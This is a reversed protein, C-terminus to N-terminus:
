RSRTGQLLGFYTMLFLTKRNHQFHNDVVWGENNLEFVRGDETSPINVEKGELIPTFEADLTIVKTEWSTLTTRYAGYLTNNVPLIALFFAGPYNKIVVDTVKTLKLTSFSHLLPQYIQDTEFALPNITVADEEEEELVALDNLGEKELETSTSSANSEARAPAINRGDSPYVVTIIGKAFRRGVEVYLTGFFLIANLLTACVFFNNRRNAYRPRVAVLKTVHTPDVISAGEFAVPM